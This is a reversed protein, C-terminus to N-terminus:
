RKKGRKKMQFIGINENAKLVMQDFAMCAFAGMVILLLLTEANLHAVPQQILLRNLEGVFRRVVFVFCFLFLFLLLSHYSIVECELKM